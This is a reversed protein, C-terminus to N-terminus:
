LWGTGVALAERVLTSIRAPAAAMGDILGTWLEPGYGFILVAVATMLLTGVLGNVLEATAKPTQTFYSM